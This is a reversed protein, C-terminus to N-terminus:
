FGLEPFERVIWARAEEMTSFVECKLESAWVGAFIKYINQFGIFFDQSGVLALAMGPNQEMAVRDQMAFRRVDEVSVKSPDEKVAKSFDWIQYRLTSIRDKSYIDENIASIESASVVGRWTIVVGCGDKESNLEYPM